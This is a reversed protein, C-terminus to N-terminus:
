SLLARMKAGAKAFDMQGQYREKLVGMAKGMDKLGSAEVEAIVDRCLKDIEEDSLQRPLFDEIIGIEEREQEALECRGGEEYMKISERRQKVMKTLIDTIVADDDQVGAETRMAIDRDKVAALILRITSLRRADKTKMADKLAGQLDQRLM